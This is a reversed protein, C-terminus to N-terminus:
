RLRNKLIAILMLENIQSLVSIGDVIKELEAAKELVTGFIDMPMDKTPITHTSFYHGLENDAFEVFGVKKIEHSELFPLLRQCEVLYEKGPFVTADRFTPDDEVSQGFIKERFFFKLGDSLEFSETHITSLGARDHSEGSDKRWLFKSNDKEKASEYRERAYQRLGDYVGIELGYFSLSKIM